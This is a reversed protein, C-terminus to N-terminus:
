VYYCAGNGLQIKLISIVHERFFLTAGIKQKVCTKSKTTSSGSGGSEKGHLLMTILENMHQKDMIDGGCVGHQNLGLKSRVTKLIPPARKDIIENIDSNSIGYKSTTTSVSSGNRRNRQLHQPYIHTAVVLPSIVACGNTSDFKPNSASLRGQYTGLKISEIQKTQLISHLHREYDRILVRISPRPEPKPRPQQKHASAVSSASPLRELDAM